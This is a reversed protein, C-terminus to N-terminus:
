KDLGLLAQLRDLELRLRQNERLQAVLDRTQDQAYINSARLYGTVRRTELQEEKRMDVQDQLKRDLRRCRTCHWAREDAAIRAQLQDIYHLEANFDVFGAERKHVLAAIARVRTYEGDAGREPEIPPSAQEAAAGACGTYRLDTRPDGGAQVLRPQKKKPEELDTEGDAGRKEPQRNPREDDKRNPKEM